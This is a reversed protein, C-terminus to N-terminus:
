YKSIKMIKDLADKIGNEKLIKSKEININTTQSSVKLRQSCNCVKGETSMSIEKKENIINQKNINVSNNYKTTSTTTTKIKIQNSGTIASSKGCTCNQNQGEGCTCKLEQLNKQIDSNQNCTCKLEQNKIKQNSGQYSSETINNKTTIRQSFYEYSETNMSQSTRIPAEEKKNLSETSSVIIKKSHSSQEQKSM